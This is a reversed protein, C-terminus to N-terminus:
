CVIFRLCFLELLRAIRLHRIFIVVCGNLRIVLGDSQIRRIWNVKGVTSRRMGVFSVM